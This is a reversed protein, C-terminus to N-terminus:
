PSVAEQKRVKPMYYYLNMDFVEVDGYIYAFRRCPNLSHLSETFAGVTDLGVTRVIGKAEHQAFVIVDSLPIM